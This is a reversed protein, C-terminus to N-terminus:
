NMSLTRSKRSLAQPRELFSAHCFLLLTGEVDDLFPLTAFFGFRPAYSRCLNAMARNHECAQDRNAQGVFGSAIAPFSLIAVDISSADMFKLSIEPSWPLNEAPTRWGVKANSKAKDLTTPFFHHHVDIRRHRAM